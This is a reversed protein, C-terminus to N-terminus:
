SQCKYSHQTFNEDPINLFQYQVSIKGMQLNEYLIAVEVRMEIKFARKLAVLDTLFGFRFFIVMCRRKFDFITEELALRVHYTLM